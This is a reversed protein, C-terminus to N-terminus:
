LEVRGFLIPTAFYSGSIGSIFLYILSFTELALISNGDLAAWRLLRM